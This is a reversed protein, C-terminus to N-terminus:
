LAFAHRNDQLTVVLAGDGGAALRHPTDPPIHVVCHRDVVVEEEGIEVRLAGEVVFTFQENAHVREAAKGARPYRLLAIHLKEGTVLAGTAGSEAATLQPTVAATSVRGPKRDDLCGFDYIYRTKEGAPDGGSEAILEATSKRRESARSGFGPLYAPGDYKGDVPPGVLGHRTDKMAFFMLDEDPCALGTHVAQAPTHMLEGRRAFVTEEAIKWTMTGQLILNFQENPHTHAKSGTGCEMRMLGVMLNRGTLAAGVTSSKAKELTAGSILRRAMVQASTPGDPVRDLAALDYVYQIRPKQALTTM